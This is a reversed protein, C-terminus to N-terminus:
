KLKGTLFVKRGPNKSGGAPEETVIFTTDYEKSLKPSNFTYSESKGAPNYVGLSYNSGGFNMWLQYVKNDDLTPMQSFQLFGRGNDASVIIKGFGSPNISTGDLNIIKVDQSLLINQLEKNGSYQASLNKIEENLKTVQNKYDKVDSSIKLYAFIIGIVILFFLLFAGILGFYSKKKVEVKEDDNATTYAHKPTESFNNGTNMETEHVSDSTADEEHFNEEGLDVVFENEDAPSNFDRNRIQTEQSPRYFDSELTDPIDEEAMNEEPFIEETEPAFRSFNQERTTGEPLVENIDDSPQNSTKQKEEAIGPETIEPNSETKTSQERKEDKIRYLKRAVKDKAKASPTEINLITPLLATLNQYEGLQQEPVDDSNKLFDEFKLLDEKDLCGLTYAFLLDKIETM